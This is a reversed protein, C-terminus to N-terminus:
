IAWNLLNMPNTIGLTIEDTIFRLFQPNIITMVTGILSLVISIIIGARYPELRSYIKKILNWM